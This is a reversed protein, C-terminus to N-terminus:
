RRFLRTPLRGPVQRRRALGWRHRLCELFRGPAGIPGLRLGRLDDLYSAWFPEMWLPRARVHYALREMAGVRLDLAPVSLGVQALLSLLRALAPELRHHRAQSGARELDLGELLVAADLAWDLTDSGHITASACLHVLADPPSLTRCALGNWDVSHVQAREDGPWVSFPFPGVFLMVTVGQPSRCLYGCDSVGSASWELKELCDLALSVHAFPVAVELRELGRLGTNAYRTLLLGAGGVVLMEVGAEGLARLLPATATALRGNHAVNYRWVGKLIPEDAGFEIHGRLNAYLQPFLRQCPYNASELRCGAAKWQAYAAAAAQPPLLAARLLLREHTSPPRM